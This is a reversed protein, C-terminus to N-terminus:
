IKSFEDYKAVRKQFTTFEKYNMVPAPMNEVAAAIGDVLGATDMGGSAVPVRAQSLGFLLNAQQDANLVVEGSNLRSLIKDGVFNTGPVVGGGAFTPAQVENSQSLYQKASVIGSLVAAIGSAIAALNAPFPGAAAGQAVAGAVGQATSLAINALALAKSFGLMAANDGAMESMFSSLSSTISAVAGLRDAAVQAQTQLVQKESAIVDANAALCAAVYAEESDYLSEKTEEDMALLEDYKQRKQELELEALEEEYGELAQRRAEFDNEIAQQQLEYSKQIREQELEELQMNFEANIAEIEEAQGKASAIAQERMKEVMQVRLNYENESGEKAAELLLQIRNVEVEYQKRMNEDSYRQRIAAVEQETQETLLVIQEEIAARATETLNEEELLRQQLQQVQREGSLQRQAVEREEADKIMSVQLDMLNALEESEIEYRERMAAAAAQARENAAERTQQALEWEQLAIDQTQRQISKGIEDYEYSAAQWAAKLEDVKAAVENYRDSGKKLTDLLRENAQIAKYTVSMEESLLKKKEEAKQVDYALSKKAANIEIQALEEASAGRMKAQALEAATNDELTKIYQEGNQAMRDQAATIRSISAEYSANAREAEAAARASKSFLQIVKDFNAILLGLAVVIAGIGTAILAKGFTNLAGSATVVSSGFVKYMAAAAAAEAKAMAMRVSGEKQLANQIQQVSSLAAMTGSLIAMAKNLKESDVGAASLATSAIGVTQALVNFADNVAEVNQTNNAFLDVSRTADDMADKLKGAQQAIAAFEETNQKGELIMQALQKTYKDIEGNLDEVAEKYSGVQRQNDGYSSELEKLEDNLENVYQSQKIYIESGVELEALIAKEAALTQRKTNLTQITSKEAALNAQLQKEYVKASQQLNKIEAGIKAYEASGKGLDKQQQKLEIIETNIKALQDAAESSNIRIDIIIEDEEM